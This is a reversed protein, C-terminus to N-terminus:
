RLRLLIVVALALVLLIVFGGVLLVLFAPLGFITDNGSKDTNSRSVTPLTTTSNTLQVFTRAGQFQPNATLIANFDQRAEAYHSPGQYFATIGAKWKDHVLNSRQAPSKIQQNIFTTI